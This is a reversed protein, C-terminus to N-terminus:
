CLSSLTKFLFNCREIGGLEFLKFIVGMIEDDNLM